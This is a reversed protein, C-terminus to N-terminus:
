MHALTDSLVWVESADGIRWLCHCKNQATCWKGSSCWILDIFLIHCLGDLFKLADSLPLWSCLKDHRHAGVSICGLVKAHLRWAIISNRQFISRRLLYLGSRSLLYRYWHWRRLVRLFSINCIYCFPCLWSSYIRGM